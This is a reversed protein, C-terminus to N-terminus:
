DRYPLYILEGPRLRRPDLGSNLAYLKRRSVRYKAAIDYLTDGAQVVYPVSRSRNPRSIVRGRKADVPPLYIMSGPRLRRPSIGKNLAYVEKQPVGYREAIESITDGQRIIYPIRPMRDRASANEFCRRFDEGMGKPIRVTYTRLNPPTCWRKLEPNLGKIVKLSTGSCRAIFSLSAPHNITVAEFSIPRHYDIDNFGYAEPDSAITGAAIFKSVYNRTERKLYYHSRAIKWYDDTRSRRIAMRVRGEGANYAALALPWSCFQEYLSSLYRAAARTSKVPDRREDVWYNIKLGYRKATASIFQWPGVARAHSRAATNYGSEILPLFILDEPLAEEKLIDRILPLYRGSRELWKAFTKRKRTTYLAIQREISSRALVNQSYSALIVYESHQEEVGYVVTDEDQSIENNLCVMGQDEERFFFERASQAPPFPSFGELGEPTDAAAKGPLFLPGILIFVLFVPIRILPNDVINLFTVKYRIPM